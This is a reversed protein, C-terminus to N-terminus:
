DHNNEKSIFNECPDDNYEIKPANKQAFCRYYGYDDNCYKCNYCNNEKEKRLEQYYMKKMKERLDKEELAKIALNLAEVMERDYPRVIREYFNKNGELIKIAEENTM